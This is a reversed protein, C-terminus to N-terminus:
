TYFCNCGAYGALLDHRFFVSVIKRPRPIVPRLNRHPALRANVAGGQRHWEIFLPCVRARSSNVV